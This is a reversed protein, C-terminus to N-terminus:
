NKRAYFGKLVNFVREMQERTGISIRLCNRVSQTQEIARVFINKNELYEFVQRKEDYDKFRIVVFNAESSFIIVPLSNKIAVIFLKKAENVEKVYNEMYDIDELVMTAAEQAFTTINKPNRITSIYQINNKSALLYGFRFNAIGFAKSMTRSVLINEYKTVLKSCTTKNSTFEYYAEDVLFMTEPFQVLLSEIFETPHLYGTPNNPNCIYVLSPNIKILYEIFGDKNFTFDDNYEYYFIRGGNVEVTLRFNDYSPWLVVVPDGVSIFLKCIYEHLSDSSGFYQINEIPLCTYKSLLNYLKLNNTSPYLNFFDGENVLELLREKVKPSPSITSENWDLKLIDKRENPSVNWIKHSALKYPKFNRLYKNVHNM